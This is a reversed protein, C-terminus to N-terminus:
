LATLVITYMHCLIKFKYIDGLKLIELQVFLMNTAKTWNSVGDLEAANAVRCLLPIVIKELNFCSPTMLLHCM